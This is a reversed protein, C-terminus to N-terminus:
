VGRTAEKLADAAGRRLAQSESGLTIMQFGLQAMANGVKGTGAHIGAVLGAASAARVIDAIADRVAPHSTAKTVDVGM